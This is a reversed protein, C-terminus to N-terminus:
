LNAILLTFNAIGQNPKYQINLIYGYLYSDTGCSFKVVGYPYLKIRNYEEMSLPYDFQAQEPKWLPLAMEPDLLMNSELPQGENLVQNEIPNAGSYQGEAHYNGTGNAFILKALYPNKFGAFWTKLWRAANRIPSIAYNYITNSDIINVPTDIHGQEVVIDGLYRKMCIIFIDNDLRWDSTTLHGKRRTVELAYGSAIFNCVRNASNRVGKWETRYERKSLFEDIGTIDESEYKAYGAQIDSFMRNSLVSTVVNNVSDCTLIVNDKQYFFEVPEVRVIKDYFSGYSNDEIGMGINHICNLGNFLDKFSINLKPLQGAVYQERVMLGNTISQLSGIGDQQTQFPQSDTRGFYESYVGMKGDTIGEATRSLAENVLFVECNTTPKYTILSARFYSDSSKKFGQTWYMDNRVGTQQHYQGQQKVRIYVAVTDGQNLTMTASYSNDIGIHAVVQNGEVLQNSIPTPGGGYSPHCEMCYGAGGATGGYAIAPNQTTTSLYYSGIVTEVYNVSVIVDVWMDLFGNSLSGSSGGLILANTQAAGLVIGKLRFDIQHQGADEITLTNLAAGNYDWNDVAGWNKVEDYQANEYDFQMYVTCSRTVLGSGAGIDNLRQICSQPVYFDNNMIRNTRKYLGKSPLYINKPLNTYVPLIGGNFTYNSSLDVAQDLRNKFITVADSQETLISVFCANACTFKYSTFVMKGQYFPQWINDGCTAEVILFVSADPGYSNYADRIITMGEGFFTLESSTFEFFVGHMEEDRRINMAMSEWGQPEEIVTTVGSTNSTYDLLSFRWLM